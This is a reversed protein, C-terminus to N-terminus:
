IQSAFYMELAKEITETIEKPNEGSGFYKAYTDYFVQREYNSTEPKTHKTTDKNYVTKPKFNLIIKKSESDKYSCLLWCEM